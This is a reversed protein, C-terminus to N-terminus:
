YCAGYARASGRRVAGGVGGVAAGIAAGKGADGAIAGIAAGGAAGRGAGRFAGPTTAQCPPPAAPPYAGSPPYGSPPYGPPPYGSPPPAYQAFQTAAQCPLACISLALIAPLIFYRMVRRKTQRHRPFRPLDQTSAGIRHM